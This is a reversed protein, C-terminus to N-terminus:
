AKGPALFVYTNGDKTFCTFIAGRASDEVHCFADSNFYLWNVKEQLAESLEFKSAYAVFALAILAFGVLYNM